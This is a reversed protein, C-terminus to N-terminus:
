KVRRIYQGPDYTTGSRIATGHWRDTSGGGARDAPKRALGLLKRYARSRYGLVKEVRFAGFREKHRLNGFKGDVPLASRWETLGGVAKYQGGM